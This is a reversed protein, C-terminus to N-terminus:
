FYLLIFHINGNVNTEFIELLSLGFSIPAQWNNDTDVFPASTLVFFHPIEDFQIQNNDPQTTNSNTSNNNQTTNNNPFEDDIETNNNLTENNNLTTILLTTSSDTTNTYSSNNNPITNNLTSNNDTINGEFFWNGPSIAASNGSTIINYVIIFLM